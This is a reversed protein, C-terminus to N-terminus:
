PAGDLDLDDANDISTLPPCATAETRKGGARRATFMNSTALTVLEEVVDHPPLGALPALPTTVVGISASLRFPATLVVQHLRETLVSADATTFTDAILYESEPVHALVADRRSTESLRRGIAVRAENAGAPGSMATLFSFSDLSVVIVAAFRDDTRDRAAILTAVRDTFADRTLLGTLPELESYHFDKDVLSIARRCVFVVFVNTLVFLLVGCFMVVVDIGAFRGALVVLTSAAVIWVFTLLSKDHFLASFASLTVFASAGVLGLSPESQIVCAVAMCLAGVVVCAQSQWRSPWGSRLWVAAMALCCVSVAVALSRNLTGSPGADSLMLLLPIGSLGVMTAAILRCTTRQLQRAALYSTLWYYHDDSRFWMRLSTAASAM